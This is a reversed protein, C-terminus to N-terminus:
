RNSKAEREKALHWARKEEPSLTRAPQPILMLVGDEGEKLEGRALAKEVYEESVYAMFGQDNFVARRTM